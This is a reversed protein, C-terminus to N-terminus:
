ITRRRSLGIFGILATGFLWVSAPIPIAPMSVLSRYESSSSSDEVNMYLGVDFNWGNKGLIADEIRNINQRVLFTMSNGEDFDYSAGTSRATIVSEFDGGDPLSEPNSPHAGALTWGPVTPSPGAWTWDVLSFGGAKVPDTNNFPVLLNSDFYIGEIAPNGLISDLNSFILETSNAPTGKVLTVTQKEAIACYPDTSDYNICDFKLTIAGANGVALCALFPLIYRLNKM